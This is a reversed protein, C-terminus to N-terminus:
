KWIKGLKELKFCGFVPSKSLGLGLGRLDEVDGAGQIQGEVRGRTGGAGQAPRPGIRRLARFNTNQSSMKESWFILDVPIM